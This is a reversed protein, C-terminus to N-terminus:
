RRPSPFKRISHYPDHRYRFDDDCHRSHVRWRASMMLLRSNSYRFPVGRLLSTFLHVLPHDDDRDNARIRTATNGTLRNRTLTACASTATCVHVCFPEGATLPRPGHWYPKRCSASNAPQIHRSENTAIGETICSTRGKHPPTTAAIQYQGPQARTVTHQHQECAYTHQNHHPPETGTVVTRTSQCKILLLTSM